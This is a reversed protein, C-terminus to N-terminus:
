AVMGLAIVVVVGCYFEGAADAQLLAGLWRGAAGSDVSGAGIAADMAPKLVTEFAIPLPPSAVLALSSVDALGARRLVARAARGALPNAIKERHARLISGTTAADAGHVMLSGWDQDLVLVSGGPRVVRKLERVAAGPDDVHQLVREARAADFSGDEFPLESVSATHFSANRPVGRAVAEDIMTRSSDVGSVRGNASVIEAIARVDEGTGCGADLVSMGEALRQAAFTRKKDVGAIKAAFDLYDVLSRGNGGDVDRFNM